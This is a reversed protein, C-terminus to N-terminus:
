NRDEYHALAPVSYADIDLIQRSRIGNGSWVPIPTYEGRLASRNKASMHPIYRKAESLRFQRVATGHIASLMLQNMARMYQRGRFLERLHFFFFKLYGLLIEDGGQGSILVRVDTQKKITELMAYQAVMSLSVFPEDGHLLTQLLTERLHLLQFQFKNSKLNLSRNVEDIFLEESFRDHDSVVSYTELDRQGSSTAAFALASSDLGGSLLLGVKVDSRLRIRTSDLLLHRFEEQASAVSSHVREEYEWYAKQEIKGDPLSIIINCKPPVKSVGKFFTEPSHDILGQALFTSLTALNPRKDNLLPLLQKIESAIYFGSDNSLIYLPKMSFRDRSLIIRRASLDAIALAWMGNMKHFGSEGFVKYLRLIVETDTQTRFECGHSKLEERLEVFNFIEGNFIIWRGEGDSMPQRGASSLDLISLRRHGLFVDYSDNLGPKELSRRERSNLGLYGSDDPGRYSVLDTLEVFRDFAKYDFFGNFKVAAFIGCM